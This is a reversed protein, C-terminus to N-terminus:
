TLVRRIREETPLLKWHPQAGKACLHLTHSQGLQVAYPMSKSSSEAGRLCRRCAM